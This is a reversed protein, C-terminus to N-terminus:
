IVKIADRKLQEFRNKIYEDNHITRLKFNKPLRDRERDRRKCMLPLGLNRYHLLKVEGMNVNASPSCRIHASPFWIEVKPSFLTSKNYVAHHVGMNVQLISGKPPSDAVMEYGDM